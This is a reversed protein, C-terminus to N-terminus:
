QKLNILNENDIEIDRLLLVVSQNKGNLHEAMLKLHIRANIPNLNNYFCNVQETLIWANM